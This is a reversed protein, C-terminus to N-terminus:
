SSGGKSIELYLKLRASYSLYTSDERLLFVAFVIWKEVDSGMVRVLGSHCGLLGRVARPAIRKVM